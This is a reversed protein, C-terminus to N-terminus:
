DGILCAAIDGENIVNRGEDFLTQAPGFCLNLPSSAQQFQITVLGKSEAGGCPDGLLTGAVSSSPTELFAHVQLPVVQRLTRSSFGNGM